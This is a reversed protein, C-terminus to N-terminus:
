GPITEQALRAHLVAWAEALTPVIVFERPEQGRISTMVRQTVRMILADSALVSLGIHRPLRQRGTQLHTIFSGAPLIHCATFDILMHLPYSLGATLRQTEDLILHYEDWTWRGTYTYVLVRRCDDSWTVTIPM